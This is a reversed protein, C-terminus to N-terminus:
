AGGACFGRAAHAARILATLDDGPATDATDHGIRIATMGNPLLAVVIGGWGVMQPINARCDGDRFPLNWFYHGYLTEGAEGTEGTPFGTTRRHDVYRAVGDEWLLAEGRWRGGEQLLQAVRALDNVTTYLGYSALPMTVGDAGPLTRAQPLHVIGLPRFVEQYLMTWLDARPGARQKLFADMAAALVLPDEDRYRAVKGPGWPYAPEAFTIALKEQLTPARYWRDYAAADDLYGDELRNPTTVTTGLGIGTAMNAADIFRVAAWAPNARAAPLHDAIKQEYVEPGYRQALRLLALAPVMSKTVSWVGHRMAACFPFDGNAARCGSTHLTGDALLARTVTGPDDTGAQLAATDVGPFRAGFATWDSVPLRAAREVARAALIEARAPLAHPTYKAETTGRAMFTGHLYFPATQQVVELELQTVRTDDFLFRAVGNHSEGEVRNMLVFPFAARSLGADAPTSWVRGPDVILDWYSSADQTVVIDRVAPLLEDGDSVFELAVSPFRQPDKGLLLGDHIAAPRSEMRFGTIALTGSFAHRAPSEDAAAVAALALMPLILHRLRHM